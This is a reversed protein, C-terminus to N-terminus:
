RWSLVDCSAVPRSIGYAEVIRRSQGPKLTIGASGGVETSHQSFIQNRRNVLVVKMSRITVASSGTNTFTVQYANFPMGRPAVQTVGNVTRVNSFGGTCSTALNASDIYLSVPQSQVAPQERHGTFGLMADLLLFTAALVVIVEAARLLMRKRRIDM